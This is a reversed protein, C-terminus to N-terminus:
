DQENAEMARKKDAEAEKLWEQHEETDWWNPKKGFAREFHRVYEEYPIQSPRRKDGKGAQGAVM